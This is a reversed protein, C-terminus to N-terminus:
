AARKPELLVHVSTVSDLQELNGSPPSYVEYPPLYVPVRGREPLWQRYLYDYQRRRALTSGQCRMVAHDGGPLERVEIDGDHEGLAIPHSVFFGVECRQRDPPTISQDDFFIGVMRGSPDLGKREAWELVRLFAPGNEEYPGVFRVCAVQSPGLRVIEIPDDGPLDPWTEEARFQRPAKGFRTKFARTFSEHTEYGADFAITTIPRETYKLRIAARELRLRRVYGAPAEGVVGSFMRHFYFPSVGAREALRDFSMADDDLDRQIWDIAQNVLTRHAIATEQKVPKM